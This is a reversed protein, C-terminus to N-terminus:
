GRVPRDAQPGVGSTVRGIGERPRGRPRSGARLKRRLGFPPSVGTATTIPIQRISSAGDPPANVMSGGPAPFVGPGAISVKGVRSTGHGGSRRDRRTRPGRPSVRMARGEAFEAAAGSGPKTAIGPPHLRNVLTARNFGGARPTPLRGRFRTRSVTCPVGTGWDALTGPCRAPLRDPMPWVDRDKRCGSRRPDPQNSWFALILTRRAALRVLGFRGFILLRQGRALGELPM